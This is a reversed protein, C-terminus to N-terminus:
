FDSSLIKARSLLAEAEKQKQIYEERLKRLERMKEYKAKAENEMQKIKDDSMGLIDGFMTPQEPKVTYKRPMTLKKQKKVPPEEISDDDSEEVIVRKRKKEEFVSPQTAIYTPPQLLCVPMSEAYENLYKPYNSAEYAVIITKTDIKGRKKLECMAADFEVFKTTKHIKENTIIGLDFLQGATLTKGLVFEDGNVKHRGILVMLQSKALYYNANHKVCLVKMGRINVHSLVHDNNDGDSNLDVMEDYYDLTKDSSESGTEVDVDHSDMGTGVCVEVNIKELALLRNDIEVNLKPLTQAITLLHQVIPDKFMEEIKAKPIHKRDLIAKVASKQDLLQARPNIKVTDPTSIDSLTIYRFGPVCVKTPTGRMPRGLLALLMQRIFFLEGSHKAAIIPVGRINVTGFNSM